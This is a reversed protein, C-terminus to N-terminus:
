NGFLSKLAKGVDPLEETLKDFINVTKEKKPVTKRKEPVAKKKIEPKRGTASRIASLCPNEDKRGKSILAAAIGAPGFLATGGVAKGIMMAARTSDIGLSPEALTGTLKFPKTLEGLSLSIGGLGGKPAPDFSLDLGETKLNIEGKGVVSMEDTDLVLASSKAIGNKMDFRSVMCNIATYDKKEKAPNLLSFIGSSLSGGLINIYKNYIRGKGMIVSTHGNLGAMLAAVSSGKGKLNIDVDISGDIMETIDLEKLMKGLGFGDINFFTTVAVTKEKRDLFIRGDIMGGGIVAKLPEITLHSNKLVLNTKLDNLALKPFMIKKATLKIDANIKELGDTKLLNGPFIKKGKKGPNKKKEEAKKKQKDEPFLPRLDLKDSFLAAYIEPVKKTLNLAISGNIKNQGFIVNMKSIKYSKTGTDSVHGKLEFPAFASLKKGTQKSLKELNASHVAFDLNMGRHAVIDKLSGKTDITTDMAKAVMHVSIKKDPDLIASLPGLEGELNFPEKNYLGNFQIKVPRNMGKSSASLRSLTINYIKKSPGNLYAFRGKEIMMNDVAFSPLSTTKKVTEEKQEVKKRNKVPKEFVLNSKGTKDTEIFIDPEVLKFRKVMINGKILPMLAVKLEFRHIKAMEPKSGWPANQFKIDSLTLSPVLGIKFNIDGGITLERGTANKVADAIRPKLDNFDYNAVIIYVVIITTVILITGIGFVWKLIRLM